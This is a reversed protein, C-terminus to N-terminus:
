WVGIFHVHVNPIALKAKFTHVLEELTPDKLHSNKLRMYLKYASCIDHYAITSCHRKLKFLESHYISKM